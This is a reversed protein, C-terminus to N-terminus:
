PIDRPFKKKKKEFIQRPPEEEFSHLKKSDRRLLDEVESFGIGRKMKLKRNKTQGGWSKKYGKKQFEFVM